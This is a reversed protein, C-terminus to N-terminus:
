AKPVYGGDRRKTIQGGDQLRRALGYAQNSSVGIAKAIEPVKAGPSKKVAALFQEQRQGRGVRRGTRKSSKAKPKGGLSTASRRRGGLGALAERLRQAETELESLRGEISTRAQEVVDTLQQEKTSDRAARRSTLGTTCANLRDPANM